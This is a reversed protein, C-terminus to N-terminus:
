RKQYLGGDAGVGVVTFTTSSQNGGAATTIKIKGGLSSHTSPTGLATNAVVEKSKFLNIDKKLNFFVPQSLHGVEINGSGTTSNPTVSTM